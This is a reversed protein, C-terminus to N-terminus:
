PLHRHRVLLIRYLINVNNIADQIANKIPNSAKHMMRTLRGKLLSNTAKADRVKPVVNETIHLGMTNIDSCNGKEIVAEFLKLFSYFPVQDAYNSYERIYRKIDELRNSECAVRMSENISNNSNSRVTKLGSLRTRIDTMTIMNNM